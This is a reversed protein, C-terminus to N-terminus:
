LVAAGNGTEVVYFDAHLGIRKQYNEGVRQIFENVASNEVISVTCGGFGAGMMRSGLVGDIEWAEEVLIDLEECSVEYDEKLSLHSANM